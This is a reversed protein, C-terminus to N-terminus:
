RATCPTPDPPAYHIFSHHPPLVQLVFTGPTPLILTFWPGEAQMWFEESGKVLVEYQSSLKHVGGHGGSPSAEEACTQLWEPGVSCVSINLEGEGVYQTWGDTPKAIVVGPCQYEPVPLQVPAEDLVLATGEPPAVVIHVASEGLVSGAALLQARVTHNGLGLGNAVLGSQLARELGGCGVLSDDIDV